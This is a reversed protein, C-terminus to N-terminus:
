FGRTLESVLEPTRVAKATPALVQEILADIAAVQVPTLPLTAVLAEILPVAAPGFQQLTKQVWSLVAPWNIKPLARASELQLDAQLNALSYLNPAAGNYIWDPSLYAYAEDCYARLAAETIYQVQGWTILEYVKASSDYGMLPVDHGGWSGPAWDGSTTGNPGVDWVDGPNTKSQWATPLALGIDVLGFLNIAEQWHLVNMGAGAQLTAFASIRHGGFGTSQFYQAATLMDCGNDTSPDGPVYGGVAEYGALIVSDPLTVAQHTGTLATWELVAHGKAAIVCDGLTNNLMMGWASVKSAAPWDKKAPPAPLAARMLHTELRPVRSDFRPAHKGLKFTTTM